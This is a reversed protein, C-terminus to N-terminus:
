RRDPSADADLPQGGAGRSNPDRHAYARSTNANINPYACPSNTHTDTCASNSDADTRATDPNPNAGATNADPDACATDTHSNRGHM